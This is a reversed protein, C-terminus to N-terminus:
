VAGKNIIVPVPHAGDGSSRAYINAVTYAAKEPSVKRRLMADFLQIVRCNVPDNAIEPPDTVPEFEIITTTKRKM